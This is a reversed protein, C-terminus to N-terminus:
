TPAPNTCIYRPVLIQRAAHILRPDRALRALMGSIQHVRFISRVAVSDRETIAEEMSVIAPDASLRRVEDLLANVEDGGFVGDLMLFGDREYAALQGPALADAYAGGDYVVPDQRAIIASGLDTRSVYVDKMSRTM